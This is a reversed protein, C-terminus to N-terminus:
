KLLTAVRPKKFYMKAPRAFKGFGVLIGLIKM